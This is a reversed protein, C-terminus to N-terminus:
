ASHDETWEIGDVDELEQQDYEDWVEEVIAYPPGNLLGETKPDVDHTSQEGNEAVRVVQARTTNIALFTRTGVDTVRWTIGRLCFEQGIHM